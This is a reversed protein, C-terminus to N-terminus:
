LMLLQQQQAEDLVNIGGDQDGAPPIGQPFYALQNLQDFYQARQILIKQDDNL